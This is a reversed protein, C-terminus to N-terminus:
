RSQIWCPQDYAGPHLFRPSVRVHETRQNDKEKEKIGIMEKYDMLKPLKLTVLFKKREPALPLTDNLYIEDLTEEEPSGNFNM